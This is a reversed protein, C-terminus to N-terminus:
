IKIVEVVTWNRWNLTLHFFTIRKKWNLKAYLIERKGNSCCFSFCGTCDIFFAKTWIRAFRALRLQEGSLIKLLMDYPNVNHQLARFWYRFFAKCLLFSYFENKNTDIFANLCLTISSWKDSIWKNFYFKLKYGVSQVRPWQNMRIHIEIIQSLM